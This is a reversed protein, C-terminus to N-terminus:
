KSARGRNEVRDTQKYGAQAPLALLGWVLLFSLVKKMPAGKPAPFKMILSRTAPRLSGLPTIRTRATLNGSGALEGDARHHSPSYDRAQPKELLSVGNSRFEGNLSM